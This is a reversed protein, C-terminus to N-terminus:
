KHAGPVMPYTAQVSEVANIDEPATNYHSEEKPTAHRKSWTQLRHERKATRFSLDCREERSGRWPHHNVELLQRMIPCSITTATPIQCADELLFLRMGTRRFKTSSNSIPRVPVSIDLLSYKTLNSTKQSKAHFSNGQADGWLTVPMSWSQALEKDSDVHRCDITQPITERHNCIPRDILWYLKSVLRMPSWAWHCLATSDNEPDWVFIGTANQRQYQFHRRFLM